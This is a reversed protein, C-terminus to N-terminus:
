KPPRYGAAVADEISAFCLEADASNRLNSAVEETVDLTVPLSFIEGTNLHMDSVVSRFDSEGMFGVLPHFAGTSIKQAELYQDLRLPISARSNM